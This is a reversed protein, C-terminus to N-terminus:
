LAKCAIYKAIYDAIANIDANRIVIDYKDLIPRITDFSDRLGEKFSDEIYQKEKNEM